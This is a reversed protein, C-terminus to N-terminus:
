IWSLIVRAMSDTVPDEERYTLDSVGSPDWSVIGDEGGINLAGCISEDGGRVFVLFGGGTVGLDNLRNKVGRETSPASELPPFSRGLRWMSFSIHEGANFRRPGANELIDSPVWSLGALDEWECSSKNVGRLFRFNDM